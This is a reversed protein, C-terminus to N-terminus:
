WICNENEEAEEIQDKLVKQIFELAELMTSLETDGSLVIEFGDGGNEGLTRVRISTSALNEIRIYTRCGNGGDGGHFGNTGAEVQLINCSVIDREWTELRGDKLLREKKMVEYM